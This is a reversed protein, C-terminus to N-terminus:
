AESSKRTVPKKAIKETVIKSSKERPVSISYYERSRTKARVKRRNVASRTSSLVHDHAPRWNEMRVIGGQESHQRGKFGMAGQGFM